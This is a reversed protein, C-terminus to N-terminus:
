RGPLPIKLVTRSEGTLELPHMKDNIDCIRWFLEPDGITRAAILDLRDGATVVIEAALLSTKEELLPPLFRRRKYLIFTGDGEKEGEGERRKMKADEIIYYRSTPEFM